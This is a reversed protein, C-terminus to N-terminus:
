LEVDTNAWVRAETRLFIYERKGRVNKVDEHEHYKGSIQARKKVRKDKKKM